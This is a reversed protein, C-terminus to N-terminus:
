FKELPTPVGDDDLCLATEAGAGDQPWGLDREHPTEGTAMAFRQRVLDRVDAGRTALSLVGDPGKLLPAAPRLAAPLRALSRRDDAPLQARRGAAPVVSLGPATATVQLRGDWIAPQGPLLATLPEGRRGWEGAERSVRVRDGDAMIRAGGLTAVLAPEPGALRVALAALRDGRPTGEGGGVCVIAAALTRVELRRPLALAGTPLGEVGRPPAPDPPLPEPAVEVGAAMAARAQARPHVPDDNAPDDLWGAGRGALWIRLDARSLDILPRLLMLGRGEPWVPSPSWDRLRGLTGGRARMWAAERRDDLTHGTLIVRAGAARAAEALLAHRARRAAAALGAAPRDGTWVLPTWAVGLAGACAGAAATWAASDPHLRHDVTFAALRRGRRRAWALALHLLAVSDGGGSLAV